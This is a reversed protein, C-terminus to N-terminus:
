NRKAKRPHLIKLEPQQQIARFLDMEIIDSSYELQHKWRGLKEAFQRRTELPWKGAIAELEPEMKVRVRIKLAKTHMFRVYCFQCSM